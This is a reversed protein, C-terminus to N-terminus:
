QLVKKLIKMEWTIKTKSILAGCSNIEWKTYIAVSDSDFYDADKASKM